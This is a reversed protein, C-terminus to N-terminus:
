FDGILLDEIVEPVVPINRDAPVSQAMPQQTGSTPSAGRESQPTAPVFPAGGSINNSSPASDICNRIFVERPDEVSEIVRFKQTRLSHSEDQLFGGTYLIEIELYYEDPKLTVPVDVTVDQKHCGTAFNRTTNFSGVLQGDVFSITLNSPVAKYKCYDVTFTIQEGARVEAPTVPLNNANLQLVKDPFFAKYFFLFSLVAAFMIVGLGIRYLWRHLAPVNKEKETKVAQDIKNM